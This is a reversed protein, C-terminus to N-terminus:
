SYLLFIMSTSRICYTFYVFMGNLAKKSINLLPKFVKILLCEVAFLRMYHIKVDSNETTNNVLMLILPSIQSKLTDRKWERKERTLLMDLKKQSASRKRVTHLRPSATFQHEAWSVLMSVLDLWHPKSKPYQFGNLIVGLPSSPRLAEEWPKRNLQQGRLM